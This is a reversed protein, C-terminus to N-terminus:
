DVFDGNFIYFNIELFLGNFEFINFFDYFQGYIDGCVIIKEIEKFIIEVFMSLKFFVEKVQVLIQYVCKWYLKKQDKYWQMFEKMFIIIVKGDEFKFGSYEDEIIMSEIDLLDVVFCKYEDGVIVWEFVKQKVIKNCEQYKMKVDKDYFKVKVVM